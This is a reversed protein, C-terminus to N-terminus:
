CRAMPIQEFFFTTVVHRCKPEHDVVALADATMGAGHGAFALVLHRDAHIPGPDLVDLFAGKGVIASQKRDHAAVV